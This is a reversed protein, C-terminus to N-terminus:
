ATLIKYDIVLYGLSSKDDEGVLVYKGECKPFSAVMRTM